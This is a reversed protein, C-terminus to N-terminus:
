PAPSRNCTNCPSCANCGHNCHAAAAQLQALHNSRRTKKWTALAAARARARAGARGQVGGGAGARGGAQMRVGVHSAQLAQLGRAAGPTPGNQLNCASTKSGAVVGAVAGAVLALAQLKLADSPIM